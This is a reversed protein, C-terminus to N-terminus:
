KLGVRSMLIEDVFGFTETPFMEWKSNKKKHNNSNNSASSSSSSCCESNFSSSDLSQHPSSPATSLTHISYRRSSSSQKTNSTIDDVKYPISNGNPTEWHNSIDSLSESSDEAIKSLSVLNKLRERKYASLQDVRALFEWTDRQIRVSDFASSLDSLSSCSRTSDDDSSDEWDYHHHHHHHHHQDLINYPSSATADVIENLEHITLANVMRSDASSESGYTSSCESSLAHHDDDKPLRKRLTGLLELGVMQMQRKNAIRDTRQRKQAAEKEVKKLFEWVDDPKEEYEHQKHSSRQILIQKEKAKTSLYQYRPTNLRKQYEGQHFASSASLQISCRVTYSAVVAQFQRIFAVSPPRNTDEDKNWPIYPMLQIIVPLTSCLKGLQHAYALASNQGEIMIYEFVVVFNNKRTDDQLYQARTAYGDIAKILSTLDDLPEHQEDNDDDSQFIMTRRKDQNSAHLRVSLSAHPMDELLNLIRPAAGYTTIHIQDQPLQFMQELSQCAKVVADYNHLPEGNELFSISRVHLTRHTTACDFQGKQQVLKWAHIVQEIIEYSTLNRKFSESSPPYHPVTVSCGAQCSLHISAYHQQQQQQKGNSDNDQEMEPTTIVTDIYYGDSLQIQLVASRRSSSLHVSSLSTTMTAYDHRNRLLFGFLSPAISLEGTEAVNVTELFDDLKSYSQQHLEKYFADLEYSSLSYDLQEELNTRDLLSRRRRHSCKESSM